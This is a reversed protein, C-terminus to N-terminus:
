NLLNEYQFYREAAEMNTIERANDLQQEAPVFAPVTIKSNSIRKQVEGYKVQLQMRKGIADDGMTQHYAKLEPVDVHNLMKAAVKHTKDCETMQDIMQISLIIDERLLDVEKLATLLDQKEQTLDKM